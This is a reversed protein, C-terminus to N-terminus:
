RATEKLRLVAAHADYYRPHETYATVSEYFRLAKRVDGIAEYAQGLKFLTDAGSKSSQRFELYCPIALDARAFENLYLDGLMQLLRYWADEESDSAFKAPKNERTDELIRLAEEREGKTLLARAVLLKPEIWQPRVTAALRALHLGWDITDLDADRRALLQRAKTLCYDVDFGKLVSESAQSLQEPLVSYYYKDKRELLERDKPKYVLALDNYHLAPLAEGLREYMEALQRFTQLGARNGELIIRLLAVAGRFDERAAADDAMRKIAMYFTTAEDAPLKQPGYALGSERLKEFTTRMAEREGLREYTQAIELYTSPAHAPDADAAMELFELGQRWRAPDSLLARGLERAYAADFETAVVPRRQCYENWSLGDYLLRKLEWADTDDKNEALTREVAAIAEMKRGPLGLQPQGIRTALDRSRRLAMQWAPFLVAQRSPHEADSWAQPDFLRALREAAAEPQGARMDAVARWYEVEPRRAPAQCAVLELLQQVEERQTPSLSPQWLLRGARNLCLDLDLLALTESDGAVQKPDIGSHVRALGALALENQPDLTLARRFSRLASRIQGMQMYSYGRLTHKFVRLGPLVHRTYIVYIGAPLILSISPLNPTLNILWVAVAMTGCLAAFEAESEEARGAFTLVYFFPLGLLLHIGLQRRIDSGSQLNLQPDNEIVYLAIGVLICAVAAAVMSRVNASGIRRAEGMAVGLLAGAGMCVPLLGQSTEPNKVSLAGALLGGIVGIYLWTPSELLLFLILAVIKGRIKIGRPVWSMFSLVLAIALGGCLFAALTGTQTWSPHQLAAFSLLGLFIGKLLYETLLWSM